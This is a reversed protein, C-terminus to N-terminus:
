DDAGQQSTEQGARARQLDVLCVVLDNISKIWQVQDDTVRLGTRDELATILELETLSDIGLSELETDPGADTLDIELEEAVERLLDTLETAGLIEQMAMGDM